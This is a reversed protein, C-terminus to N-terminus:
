GLAYRQTDSAREVADLRDRLRRDFAIAPHKSQAIDGGDGMSKGIRGAKHHTLFAFGREADADNSGLAGVDQFEALVDLSRGRFEHFRNRLADVDLLDCILGFYNLM